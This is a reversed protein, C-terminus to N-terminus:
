IIWKNISWLYTALLVSLSMLCLGWALVFVAVFLLDTQSNPKTERAKRLYGPVILMAWIVILAIPLACATLGILIAVSFLSKIDFLQKIAFNSAISIGCITFFSSVISLKDSPTGNIFDYILGRVFGEPKIPKEREESTKNAM